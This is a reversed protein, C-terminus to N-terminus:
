AELRHSPFDLPKEPNVLLFMGTPMRFGDRDMPVLARVRARAGDAVGQILGRRESM